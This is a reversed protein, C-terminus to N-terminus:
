IRIFEKLLISSIFCREDNNGKGSLQNRLMEKKIAKERKRLVELSVDTRREEVAADKAADEEERRVIELWAEKDHKFVCKELRQEASLDKLSDAEVM